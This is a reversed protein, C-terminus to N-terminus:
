FHLTTQRFEARERGKRKGMVRIAIRSTMYYPGIGRNSMLRSVLSKDNKELSRPRM